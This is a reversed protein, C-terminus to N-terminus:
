LAELVTRLNQGVTSYTYREIAGPLDSTLPFTAPSLARNRSAYAGRMMSAFRPLDPDIWTQRGTLGHAGLYRLNVAGAAVHELQVDGQAPQEHGQILDASTPSLYEDSGLNASAIIHRGAVMADFAPLNWAEGRSTTVFCDAERHLDIIEADTAFGNRFDIRAMEHRELGTSHAAVVFNDHSAFPSQIVLEVQEEPRFEGLFARIVGIPYKRSNWAGVYYFRYRDPQEQRPRRLYVVDDPDCAHPLHAVRSADELRAARMVNHMSPFFVAHFERLARQFTVPMRNAGEWTTYAALRSSAKTLGTIQLVRECDFPLTHVFVIDPTTLEADTKLCSALPLVSARTFDLHGAPALPRIELEIGAALMSLCTAEAARGYGTRQGVHGYYRVKM